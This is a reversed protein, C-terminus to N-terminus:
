RWRLHCRRELCRGAAPSPQEKIDFDTQHRGRENRGHEEEHVENCPIALETRPEAREAPDGVPDASDYPCWQAARQGLPEARVGARPQHQCNLHQDCGGQRKQTM